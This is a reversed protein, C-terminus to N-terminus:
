ADDRPTYYLKWRGGMGAFTPAENAGSTDTVRLQGLLHGYGYQALLNKGPLLAMNRIVVETDSLSTMALYYKDTTTNWHFLLRYPNGDLNKTGQYYAKPYTKILIDAMM